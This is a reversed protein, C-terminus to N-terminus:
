AKEPKAFYAAELWSIGIEKAFVALELLHGSLSAYIMESAKQHAERNNNNRGSAYLGSEANYCFEIRGRQRGLSKVFEDDLRFGDTFRYLLKLLEVYNPTMEKPATVLMDQGRINPLLFRQMQTAYIDDADLKATTPFAVVVLRGGDNGAMLPFRRFTADLGMRKEIIGILREGPTLSAIRSQMEGKPLALINEKVLM